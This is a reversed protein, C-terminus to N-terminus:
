KACNMRPVLTGGRSLTRAAVADAAAPSRKNSVTPQAAHWTGAIVVALGPVLGHDRKVRAVESAVQGRLEAAIAKGDIIRATM